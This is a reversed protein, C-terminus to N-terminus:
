RGSLILPRVSRLKGISWREDSSNPRIADQDGGVILLQGPLHYRTRFGGPYRWHKWYCILLGPLRDLQRLVTGSSGVHALVRRM